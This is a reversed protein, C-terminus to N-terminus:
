LSSPEYMTASTCCISPELLTLATAIAEVSPKFLPIFTILVFSGILIGTPFGIKPLIKFTVPSGTSWIPAISVSVYKGICLSDGFNTSWFVLMSIRSVPILAISKNCGYWFPPFIPRNPPAPTPLVTNIM